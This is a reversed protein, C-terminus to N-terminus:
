ARDMPRRGRSDRPRAAAMETSEPVRGRGRARHEGACRAAPARGCSVSRGSDVCYLTRDTGQAVGLAGALGRGAFVDEIARADLWSRAGMRLRPIIRRTSTVRALGEALAEAAKQRYERTLTMERDEENALNSIEFLVRNPVKSYRLVAPM